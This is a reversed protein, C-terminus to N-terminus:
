AERHRCADTATLDVATHHLGSPDNERFSERRALSFGADSLGLSPTAPIACRTLKFVVVQLSVQEPTMKVRARLETQPLVPVCFSLLVEMVCCPSLALRCLTCVSMLLAQVYVIQGRCRWEGPVCGVVIGLKQTLGDM